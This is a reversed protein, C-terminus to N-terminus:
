DESKHSNVEKAQKNTKTYILLFSFLAYFSVGALRNLMTEFIFFIITSIIFMGLLLNQQTIAIYSTYVLIALFLILGILGNELLIEIFQNHANLNDYFGNVYGRKIFEEKLKEAADGTGVGLLLNKRVVGLASKWILLRPDNKLTNDFKEQSIGELSSNVKENKKAIVIFVFSLIGLVILVIWKPYKTYFKFLLYLPFVIIGALIGARASLLYLVVFFILIIAGWFGKRINSLSNNFLSECSILISMVIYMALYSPHEPDSLRSSFFFNEYDYDIPHPNFLWKSNQIIISNHFANVLCFVVYIFTCIAFLKTILGINKIIRSGPYFLVLPFLIFSLRKFLREFGINISDAHFMGSIQWLYFFIFLFFLISANNGIFIEKKLGSRNELIWFFGWFMMIPPLYHIYIPLIVVTLLCFVFTLGGNKIFRKISDTSVDIM